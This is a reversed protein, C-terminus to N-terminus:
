YDRIKLQLVQVFPWPFPFTFVFFFVVNLKVDDFGLHRKIYDDESGPIKFLRRSFISFHM